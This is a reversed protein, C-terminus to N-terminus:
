GIQYVNVEDVSDAALENAVKDNNKICTKTIAEAVKEEDEWKVRKKRCFQGRDATKLRKVAAYAEKVENSVPSKIFGCTFMPSKLLQQIVEIKAMYMGQELTTVVEQQLQLKFNDLSPSDYHVCDNSRKKMGKVM